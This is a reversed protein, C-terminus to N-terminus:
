LACPLYFAALNNDEDGSQATWPQARAQVKRKTWSPYQYVWRLYGQLPSPVPTDYYKSDGMGKIEVAM